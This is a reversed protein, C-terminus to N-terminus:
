ETPSSALSSWPSLTRSDPITLSVTSPSRNPSTNKMQFEKWFERDITEWENSENSDPYAVVLTLPDALNYLGLYKQAHIGKKGGEAIWVICRAKTCHKGGTVIGYLWQRQKGEPEMSGQFKVLKNKDEHLATAITIGLDQEADRYEQSRHPLEPRPIGQRDVFTM